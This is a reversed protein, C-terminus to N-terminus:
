VQDQDATGELSLAFDCDRKNKRNANSPHGFFFFILFAPLTPTPTTSATYADADYGKDAHIGLADVIM